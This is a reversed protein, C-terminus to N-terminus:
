NAAAPADTSLARIFRDRFESMPWVPASDAPLLGATWGWGGFDALLDPPGILHVPVDRSDIGAVFPAPQHDGLIVMLPPRGSQREAYSLIVQLSYDIAQRYQDRVRDHDRWVVEPPDGTTAWRDFVTGDGVDSWPILQPVPLWPAHSSLLVIQAVLPGAEPGRPVLRDFAALTFQDPMTVFNFPQGRYGLDAAALITGFGQVSGEPWAMTIGPMIAATRFGSAAALHYLSARGSALLARYRAQSSITLGSELTSHALWSQGGEVPSTLWGSRMALGAAALRPEAARLTARHTPSYLPNDFSSRGYSEIFVILVDRGALRDFLGSAGAFPDTAAAARFRVLDARTEAYTAVHDAILRTATAKLPLRLPLAGAVEAAVVLVALCAAILAIRSPALGAWCGSAWWLAAALGAVALLACAIALLVLPLGLTSVALRIGAEVLHLDVAPNFPRAFAAVTGFDALKLVTVLLLAAVLAARLLRTAVSRRPLAALLLLLVPLELPLRLATSATLGAPANPAVLVLHFVLAALILAPVSVRRAPKM